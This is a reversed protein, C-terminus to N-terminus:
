VGEDYKRTNWWFTAGFHSVSSRRHHCRCYLIKIRRWSVVFINLQTENNNAEWRLDKIEPQM